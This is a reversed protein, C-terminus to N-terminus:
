NKNEEEKDKEKDKKQKEKLEIVFIMKMFGYFIRNDITELIMYNGTNPKCVNILEYSKEYENINFRLPYNSKCKECYLKTIYYSKITKNKKEEKKM